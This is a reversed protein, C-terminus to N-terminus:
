KAERKEDRKEVDVKTLVKELKHLCEIFRHAHYITKSLLELKEDPNKLKQFPRSKLTDM